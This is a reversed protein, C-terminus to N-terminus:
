ARMFLWENCFVSSPSIRARNSGLRVRRVCSTGKMAPWLWKVRFFALNGARRKGFRFRLWYLAKQLKFNGVRMERHVHCCFVVVIMYGNCQSRCDSLWSVRLVVCAHVVVWQLVCLLFQNAGLEVLRVRRVCSTGKVAPVSFRLTEQGPKGWFSVCTVHLRKKKKQLEFNGVRMERRVHCCVVVVIICGNCQWRCGSFLFPM